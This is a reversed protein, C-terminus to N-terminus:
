LHACHLENIQTPHSNSPLIRPATLASKNDFLVSNPVITYMLGFSKDGFSFILLHFSNHPEIYSDTVYCFRDAGIAECDHVERREALKTADSREKVM